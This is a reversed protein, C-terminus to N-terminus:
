VLSGIKELALLTAPDMEPAAKSTKKVKQISLVEQKKYNSVIFLIQKLLQKLTQFQKSHGVRM